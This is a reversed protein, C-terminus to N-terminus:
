GPFPYPILAEGKQTKQCFLAPRENKRKTKEEKNEGKSFFRHKNIIGPQLYEGTGLGPCM